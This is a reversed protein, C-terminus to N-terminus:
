LIYKGIITKKLFVTLLISVTLAIFFCLWPLVYANVSYILVKTKYYLGWLIFQQLIYVGMCLSGIKILWQPTQHYKIIYLATLMLALTGIFANLIRCLNVGGMLVITNSFNAFLYHRVIVMGFFLVIFVIWGVMVHFLKVREKVLSAYKIFCSGTIFFFLYYLTYSFQFPLDKPRLIAVVFLIPMILWEPVKCKLIFWGLLFCWFLMPLFWLHGPGELIHFLNLNWPEFMIIYLLGFVFTPFILRQVKKKVLLVITEEKGRILRQYAWVYGSIFVFAELMFAYSLKGIMAYEPIVFVGDPLKWNGTHIAMSHYLVMLIILVPRVLSVEDLNKRSSNLDMKELM